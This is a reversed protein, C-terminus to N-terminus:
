PGSFNDISVNKIWVNNGRIQIANISTESNQGAPTLTTNDIISIRRSVETQFFNLGDIVVYSINDSIYLMRSRGNSPPETAAWILTVKGDNYPKFTIPAGSRGSKKIYLFNDPDTLYYDGALFYVTDGPQLQTTNFARLPTKWPAAQTGANSDNGSTSVYYDAAQAVSAVALFSLFSSVLVLIKYRTYEVRLKERAM